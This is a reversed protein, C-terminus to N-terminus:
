AWQSSHCHKFLKFNEGEADYLCVHKVGIAELWSLLKVVRSTQYAEESEVVIALYQIKGSNFAKYKKWLGSSILYSKLACAIGVVLYYISVIFHIIHWLLQLVFNGVQSIYCYARWTVERFEM